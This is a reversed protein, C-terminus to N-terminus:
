MNTSKNYVQVLKAYASNSLQYNVFRKDDSSTIRHISSKVKFQEEIYVNANRIFKSRLQRQTEYSKREIKILENLILTSCTYDPGNELFLQLFEDFYRPKTVALIGVSNLRLVRKILFYITLLGLLSIIIFGSYYGYDVWYLDFFLETSLKAVDFRHLVAHEVDLLYLINLEKVLFYELNGDKFYRVDKNIFDTKQYKEHFKIKAVQHFVNPKIEVSLEGNDLNIEKNALSIPDKWVHYECWAISNITLLFILLIILKLKPHIM